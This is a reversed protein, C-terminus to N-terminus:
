SELEKAESNTIGQCVESWNVEVLSFAIVHDESVRKM